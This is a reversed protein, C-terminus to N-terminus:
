DEHVTMTIAKNRCRDRAMRGIHYVLKNTMMTATVVKMLIRLAEM